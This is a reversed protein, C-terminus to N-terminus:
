TAAHGYSYGCCALQCSRKSRNNVESRKRTDYVLTEKTFYCCVSHDCKLM